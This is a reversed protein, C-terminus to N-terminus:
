WCLTEMKLTICKCHVAKLKLKAGISPWIFVHSASTQADRDDGESINVTSIRSVGSEQSRRAIQRGWLSRSTGAWSSTGWFCLWSSVEWLCCSAAATSKNQLPVNRKSSDWDICALASDVHSM